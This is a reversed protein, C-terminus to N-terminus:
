SPILLIFARSHSSESYNQNWIDSESIWRVTNTDIEMEEAVSTASKNNPM